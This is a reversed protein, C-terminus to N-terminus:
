TEKIHLACRIHPPKGWVLCNQTVSAPIRCDSAIRVSDVQLHSRMAEPNLGLLSGGVSYTGVALLLDRNSVVETENPELNSIGVVGEKLEISKSSRSVSSLSVSM